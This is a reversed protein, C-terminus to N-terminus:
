PTYFLELVEISNDVTAIAVYDQNSLLSGSPPTLPSVSLLHAWDATNHRLVQEGNLYGVLGDFHGIALLTDLQPLTVVNPTAYRKFSAMSTLILDANFWFEAEFNAILYVM